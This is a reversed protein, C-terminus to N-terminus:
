KKLVIEKDFKMAEDVCYQMKKNPLCFVNENGNEGLKAKWETSKIFPKQLELKNFLIDLGIKTIIAIVTIAGIITLIIDIM